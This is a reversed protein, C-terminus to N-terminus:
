VMGWRQELVEGLPQQWAMGLETGQWAM